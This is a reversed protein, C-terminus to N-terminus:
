IHILSLCLLYVDRYLGGYFTFDAKQPYVTDNASNDVSVALLNKGAALAPTLEARFTSYGGSHAVLKQGNLFVEATMAAGRLEIWLQEGDALAPAAFKKVYWCRGRYYDNGGDTGDKANWTHPLTVAEGHALTLAHGCDQRSFYWGNNWLETTRM